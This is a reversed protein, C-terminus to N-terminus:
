LRLSRGDKSDVWYEFDKDYSSVFFGRFSTMHATNGNYTAIVRQQWKEWFIRLM